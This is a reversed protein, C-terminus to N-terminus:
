EHFSACFAKFRAEEARVEAVPGKMKVFVMDSPREIALAMLREAGAAAGDSAGMAAAPSAAMGDEYTGDTVLLTAPSGLVTSRPLADFEADSLPAAGMQGRWRDVNMRTGGAKGRMLVVYIETGPASKSAFTGLRMPRPGQRVWEPPITWRFPVLTPDFEPATRDADSALESAPTAALSAALALFSPTQANVTAAPGTMKLFLVGAPLEVVLGVLRANPVNPGGGMGVFTGDLEVRVADRGLVHLRPLSAIATDSEPPLSMQKRWRNVNAALGGGTGSLTSLSCETADDVRWATVRMPGPGLDTWGDPTTWTWAPADGPAPGADRALGAHPDGHPGKRDPRLRETLSLEPAPPGADARERVDTIEFTGGRGCGAALIAAVCM